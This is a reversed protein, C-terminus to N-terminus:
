QMLRRATEIEIQKELLMRAFMVIKMIDFREQISLDEFESPQPDFPLKCLEFRRSREAQLWVKKAMKYDKSTRRYDDIEEETLTLETEPQSLIM